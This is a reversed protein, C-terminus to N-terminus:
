EQVQTPQVDSQSLLYAKGMAFSLWVSQPYEKEIKQYYEISKDKNGLIEQNRAIAIIIYDKLYNKKDLALAEEYYQLAKAFDFTQEAKMGETMAIATGWFNSHKDKISDLYGEESFSTVITQDDLLVNLNSMSLIIQVLLASRAGAITDEYESILVDIDLIAEEYLKKVQPINQHDPSYMKNPQAQVDNIVTYLKQWTDDFLINAERENDIKSQYLVGSFISLVVIVGLATLVIMRNKILVTFFKEVKSDM